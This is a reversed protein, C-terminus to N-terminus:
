TKREERRRAFAGDTVVRKFEERLNGIARLMRYADEREEVQHPESSRWQEMAKAEISSVMEKFM